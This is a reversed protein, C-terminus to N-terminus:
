PCITPEEINWDKSCERSLEVVPFPTCISETENQPRSIAKIKFADMQWFEGTFTFRLQIKRFWRYFTKTIPDCNEDDQPAGLNLESFNHSSLGNVQAPTPIGCTAIPAEHTFRRWPLYKSSNSPKYEIDMKFKGKIDALSVDISHLEKNQFQNEFEFERTYVTSKILRKGYPTVDVYEDAAVEYINNTYAADKSVIFCRQNNVCIDMPRIGTWLGSWVPKASEGLTAINELELVALGGHAYDVVAMGQTDKAQTRYPNASVFIRNNYYGLFGYRALSQDNFKLWNKVERSIPVKSWRKQEDRSMSLTRVQGDLSLYFLDSNVNVLARPGVIGAGYVLNSGFQGSEWSGRPNQTNYSFISRQTAVLLPGIGTSTDTAQLFAMASIPDNNDNTPLQFIQGFYPSALTLVEEFTVPAEPTLVSGTPDGGTFENGANAIFLRNQNYVGFTSIPVEFKTPDARRCETGDIIVPFAPFDYLVLYRGAASWNIRAAYEDIRSGDEIELVSVKKTNVNLLFITGSIVLVMYSDLGINYPAIAQFKGARFIDAYSREYKNPLTIGGEPLELELFILAPRPGLAGNQVSVNIGSAYANPAIKDPVKSADQGGLFDLSGDFVLENAM